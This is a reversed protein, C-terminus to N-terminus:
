IHNTYSKGPPESPLAAAQLAPSGSKTGLNPLDGLSPFPHGSWFGQRSFEMSLSAQHALDMPDCLTPCSQPVLM